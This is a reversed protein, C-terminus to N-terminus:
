QIKDVFKFPPPPGRSFMLHISSFKNKLYVCCLFIFFNANFNSFKNNSIFYIRVIICLYINMHYFVSLIHCFISLNLAGCSKQQLLLLFFTWRVFVFFLKFSFDNSAFYNSRINSAQNLQVKVAVREHTVSLLFYIKLFATRNFIHNLASLM